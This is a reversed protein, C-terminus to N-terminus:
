EYVKRFVIQFYMEKFNSNYSRSLPILNGSRMKIESNTYADVCHLNIIYSRHCKYFGNDLTLEDELAYLAKPTRISEGDALYLVSYRNQAEVYEIQNLQVHHTTSFSKVLISPSDQAFEELLDNLCSCFKEESVPKLLYNSAKVSYSEVAYDTSSTLFVIRVNKDQERIERAVEIGNFLPMVVDLFIIDYPSKTHADILSDGNDFCDAVYNEPKGYKELLACVGNRFLLEDDCIGIRIM